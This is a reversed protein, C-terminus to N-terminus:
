GSGEAKPAHEGKRIRECLAKLVEAGKRFDAEEVYVTGSLRWYWHGRHIITQFYIGSERVGTAKLWATVADASPTAAPDDLPLRVNAFNCDRMCSGPSDMVDTGLVEAAVAGGRRAVAKSYEQISAEGGCVENRFRLAESTM